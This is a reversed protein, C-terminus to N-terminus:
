WATNVNFLATSGIPVYLQSAHLTPRDGSALNGAVLLQGAELAKGAAAKQEPTMAVASLELAGLPRPRPDAGNVLVATVEGGPPRGGWVGGSAPAAGVARWVGDARLEFFPPLDPESGPALRGRVVLHRVDGLQSDPLVAETALRGVYCEVGLSG